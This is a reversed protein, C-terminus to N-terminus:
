ETRLARMPDVLAARLAPLLSAASAILTLAAVSGALVWPDHVSTGYLFGALAKAAFLAVALGGASGCAAIWANERFVMGVVQARRAGLAMRIGIESTRRATAYSLTGYLGIGTVLLACGAFFVSLMAMMREGTISADIDGSITTMAPAPIEPAMRAALQRAAAGLPAADGSVRVVVSYSPKKDEGQTIPLYGGASSDKRISVTHCDGVVGIVTLTKQQGKGDGELLQQGIPNKGPFLTKAAEETLIVKLGGALTDSWAFDRGALLPIRLTHFYNPSVSNMYVQRDNSDAATHYGGIWVDGNMPTDSALAVSTAGPQHALADAYEHYWRLLEAGERPQKGMELDLSVVGHPDFGLGTRYLRVLSTSLLGAVVVLLLALAVELGMLVRPLVRRRERTSSIHTGSKIQESLNSATSRLAPILGILLAAVIAIIAVFGFVRWDLSTDVTMDHGSVLLAALARSVLPAAIMGAATGLVSILLSEVLLQRILRRRTAGLALRTALERERAASRAMLLSALNMCALLLMATCMSFVAVLPKSFMQRLFTYGKSGPEATLHTHAAKAQAIWKADAVSEDVISNSDARLAANAQALTVGPKRRAIVRMWWSHYGEAIADYPADVIPEAWLPVYIAPQQTPDAGTFERPAVGVVTFPQNAITLRKGVVDPAANFWQRWFGESIVASFGTAGGGKQDDVPMLLRGLLPKVEMVAFFRGSVMVGSVEVNGSNSRVQLRSHGAFAAANEFVDHRMELARFMPASFSYNPGREGDDSRDIRVVALEDAHPVPLPRLLLGNILSFVATNAGLGLALTLIATAAFAPSRRLQRLAFRLDRGAQELLPFGREIRYAERTQTVGGFSRLAATRAAERSMGSRVNEEVALDIHAQLEEDLEADRSRMRFLAACRSLLVRTWDM